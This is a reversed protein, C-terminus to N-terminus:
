EEKIEWSDCVFDPPVDEGLCMLISDEIYSTKCNDCCKKMDDEKFYENWTSRGFSWM